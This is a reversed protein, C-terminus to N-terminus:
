KTNNLYKKIKLKHNLFCIYIFFRYINFALFHLASSKFLKKPKRKLIPSIFISAKSIRKKAISNFSFISSAFNLGAVHFAIEYKDKLSYAIDLVTWFGGTSPAIQDIVILIKDKKHM